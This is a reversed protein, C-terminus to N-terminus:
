KNAEAIRDLRKQYTTALKVGHKDLASLIQLSEAEFGADPILVSHGNKLVLEMGTTNRALLLAGAGGYQGKMLMFPLLIKMWKPIITRRFRRVRKINSYSINQRSWASSILLKSPKIEIWYSAYLAGIIWFSSFILAMPWLMISSPHFTGWNPESIAAWVPFVFFLSSLIFGLWDPGTQSQGRGYVLAGKPVPFAPLYIYALVSSVMLGVAVIINDNGLQVWGAILLCMVLIRRLFERRGAKTM